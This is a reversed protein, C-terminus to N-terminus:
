CESSLWSKLNALEVDTDNLRVHIKEIVVDHADLRRTNNEHKGYIVGLFVLGGIISVITPAWTALEMNVNM